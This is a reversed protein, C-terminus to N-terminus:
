TRGVLEFLVVFVGMGVSFADLRDLLGGHGPLLDGSDKVGCRRKLSSELLDGVQGAAAAALACAIEGAGAGGRLAWGAGAAFVAAACSLGGLAGEWSKAPSVFSFRRRGFQLGVFYAGVDQAWLMVCVLLLLRWGGQVRLAVVGSLPFVFLFFSGAYLLYDGIVDGAERRHAALFVVAWSVLYLVVASHLYEARGAGGGSAELALLPLLFAFSAASLEMVDLGAPAVTPLLLRRLLVGLELSALISVTAVLALLPLGGAYICALVLPVAVFASAFRRGLGNWRTEDRRIM